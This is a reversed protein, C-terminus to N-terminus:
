AAREWLGAQEPTHGDTLLLQEPQKRHLERWLAYLLPSEAVFAYGPRATFHIRPHCTRCLTIFFRLANWRPRRHHVLILEADLEGCGQCRYEDRRLASERLGGFQERSLRERRACSPCDVDGGCGCLLSTQVM